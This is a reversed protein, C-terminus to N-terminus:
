NSKCNSFTTKAMFQPFFMDGNKPGNYNLIVSPLWLHPAVETRYSDFPFYNDVALTPKLNSAPLYIGKFRIITFDATEVWIKGEFFPSPNDSRAKPKPTVSYVCCTRDQCPEQGLFNLEYRIATFGQPDLYIGEAFAQSEIHWMFNGPRAQKTSQSTAALSLDLQAQFDHQSRRFVFLFLNVKTIRFETKVIATYRAIYPDMEGDRTFIMEQSIEVCPTSEEASPIPTARTPWASPSAFIGLLLLNIFSRRTLM